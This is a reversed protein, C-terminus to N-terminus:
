HFLENYRPIESSKDRVVIKTDTEGTDNTSKDSLSETLDSSIHSTQDGYYEVDFCTDRSIKIRPQSTICFLLKLIFICPIIMLLTGLM